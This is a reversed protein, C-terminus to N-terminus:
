AFVDQQYRGDADLQDLWQEADDDSGGTRSRYIGALAERVSPAM